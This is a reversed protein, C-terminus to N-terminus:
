NPKTFTNIKKNAFKNREEKLSVLWYLYMEEPMQRYGLKHIITLEDQIEYFTKKTREYKLVQTFDTNYGDLIDNIIKGKAETKLIMANVYNPFYELSKDACKIVFDIDYFESKQYGQALDVLCLAISEKETLAKMYVGNFVADLHVYGSAMIWADIPFIGSTLETNYWGGKKIKHKIYLHNPALALHATVGLEEALIKYLYPLSHCNGQNTELLKTVFMNNWHEHGFVDDFDYTLPLHIFRKGAQNEMPISDKMISFLSAYKEVLEKDTEQYELTRNEIIKQSLIKLFKIKTNVFTTDLSGMLYANEVTFVADKFSVERKDELIETLKIFANEYLTDRDQASVQLISLLTFLLIIKKM